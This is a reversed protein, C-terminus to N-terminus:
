WPTNIVSPVVSDQHHPNGLHLFYQLEFPDVIKVHSKVASSASRPLQPDLNEAVDMPHMESIRRWSKARTAPCKVLRRSFM